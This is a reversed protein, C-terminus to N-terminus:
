CVKHEDNVLLFQCSAENGEMTLMFRCPCKAKSKTKMFITIHYKHTQDKEENLPIYKMQFFNFFPFPIGTMQEM